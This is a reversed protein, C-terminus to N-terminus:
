NSPKSEWVAIYIMKELGIKEEGRSPKGQAKQFGCNTMLSIENEEVEPRSIKRVKRSHNFASEGQPCPKEWISPQEERVVESDRPWFTPCMNNSEVRAQLANEKGGEFFM